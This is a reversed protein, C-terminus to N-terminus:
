ELFEGNEEWLYHADSAELHEDIYEDSQEYEIEDYGTQEMERSIKKIREDCYEQLAVLIQNFGDEMEAWQDGGIDDPPWLDRSIAVDMSNWHYYHGHHSIKCLLNFEEVRHAVVWLTMQGLAAAIHEDHKAWEELDPRGEFAVGDGQCSGLSYFLKCDTIGFHDRLDTELLERLQGSDLWGEGRWWERAAAKAKDNLESYRYGYTTEPM